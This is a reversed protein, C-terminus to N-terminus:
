EPLDIMSVNNVYNTLTPNEITNLVNLIKTIEDVANEVYKIKKHILEYDAKEKKLERSLSSISLKILTLPQRIKHNATVVTAGFTKIKEIELLKKKADSLKLASNVRALLEVKEVPKKIYDFAGAQLGAKIDEASTKATVLIIPISSTEDNEILVSCVELGSLEPMMVDLLILDPKEKVAKEIGTKGDYATIIEFGETELRDQLLYVNEPQDDVVLIKSMAKNKIM